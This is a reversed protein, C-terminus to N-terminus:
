SKPSHFSLSLIIWLLPADGETEQEENQWRYAVSIPDEICDWFCCAFICCFVCV